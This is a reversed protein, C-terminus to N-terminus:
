SPASDAARIEFLLGVAFFSQELCVQNETAGKNVATATKFLPAVSFMLFLRLFKAPLLLRFIGPALTIGKSISVVVSVTIDNGYFLL